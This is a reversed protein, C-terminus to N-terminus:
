RDAQRESSRHRGYRLPVRRAAAFHLSRTCRLNCIVGGLRGLHHMNGDDHRV